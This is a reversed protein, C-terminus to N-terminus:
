RVPRKAWPRSARFESHHRVERSIRLWDAAGSIAKSADARAAQAAEVRVAHHVGFEALALLKQPNNDSMACWSPTGPWPLPGVNAQAVVARWFELVPTFSVQQSGLVQRGGANLHADLHTHHGSGQQPADTTPGASEGNRPPPGSM